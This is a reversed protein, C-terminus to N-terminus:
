CFQQEGAIGHAQVEHEAGVEVTPTKALVKLFLASPWEAKSYTM